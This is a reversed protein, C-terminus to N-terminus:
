LGFLILLIFAMFYLLGIIGYGLGRFMKFLTELDMFDVGEFINYLMAYKKEFYKISFYYKKLFIRILAAQLWM